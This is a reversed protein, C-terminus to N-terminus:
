RAPRRGAKREAFTITTQDDPVWFAADGVTGRRFRLIRDWIALASEEATFVLAAALERKSTPGLDEEAVLDVLRILREDVPWPVDVNLPCVPVSANQLKLTRDLTPGDAM